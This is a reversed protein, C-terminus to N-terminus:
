LPRWTAGGCIDCTGDTSCDVCLTAECDECLSHFDCSTCGADSGCSDCFELASLASVRGCGSTEGLLDTGPACCVAHNLPEADDVLLPRLSHMAASGAPREQFDAMVQKHSPRGGRVVCAGAVNLRAFQRERGILADRVGPVSLRACDVLAVDELELPADRLVLLGADALEACRTAVVSRLSEGARHVLAALSANTCLAPTRGPLSVRKWVQSQYVSDRWTTNVCAAACLSATDGNLFGLITDVVTSPLTTQQQRSMLRALSPLRARWLTQAAESSFFWWQCRLIM